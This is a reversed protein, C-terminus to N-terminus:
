AADYEKEKRKRAENHKKTRKQRAKKLCEAKGCTLDRPYCVRTVKERCESCTITRVARGGNGRGMANGRRFPLIPREPPLDPLPKVIGIDHHANLSGCGYEEVEEGGGMERHTGKYFMKHNCDPIPCIM